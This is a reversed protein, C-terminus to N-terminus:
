VQGEKAHLVKHAVSTLSCASLIAFGSVNEREVNVVAQETFRFQTPSCRQLAESHQLKQSKCFWHTNSQGIVCRGLWSKSHEPITINWISIFIYMLVHNNWDLLGLWTVTLNWQKLMPLILCQFNTTNPNTRRLAKVTITNHMLYQRKKVTLTPGIDRPVGLILYMGICELRSMYITWLITHM